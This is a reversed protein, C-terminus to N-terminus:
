VTFMGVREVHVFTAQALGIQLMHRCFTSHPSTRQTATAEVSSSFTPAFRLRELREICRRLTRLVRCHCWLRESQFPSAICFGLLGHPALKLSALSGSNAHCSCNGERSRLLPFSRRRRELREMDVSSCCRGCFFRGHDTRIRSSSSTVQGARIKQARLRAKRSPAAGARTSRTSWLLVGWRVLNETVFDDQLTRLPVRIM